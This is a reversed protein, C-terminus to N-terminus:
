LLFAPEGSRQARETHLAQLEALRVGAAARWDALVGLRLEATLGPDGAVHRAHLLGLAARLDGRAVERGERPTRVAHDLRTGSDWIPYWIRDALVSIDPRGAHLLLVDLDSGPLLERRGYGGVAVLAVGAEDGLLLALWRDSEAARRARDAGFAAARRGPM